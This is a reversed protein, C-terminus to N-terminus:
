RLPGGRREVFGDGGAQEHGVSRHQPETVLDGAPRDLLLDARVGAGLDVAADQGLELLGPGIVGSEGVVGLAREVAVGDDAVGAAGAVPGGLQRGPALGHRLVAARQAEDAGVLREHSGVEEVRQAALEGGEVLPRWRGLGELLRDRQPVLAAHGQALAICEPAEAHGVPPSDTSLLAVGRRNRARSGDELGEARRALEGPRQRAHGAHVHAPLLRVLAERVGRPGALQGLREPKTSTALSASLM